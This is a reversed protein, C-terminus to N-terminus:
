TAGAGNTPQAQQHVMDPQREDPPLIGCLEVVTDLGLNHIEGITPREVLIDLQEVDDTPIRDRLGDVVSMAPPPEAPLDALLGRMEVPWRFCLVIWIVLLRQQEPPWAMKEAQVLMKALRHVNVIRKLERPNSPLLSQLDLFAELEDSTDEVPREVVRRRAKDQPHKLNGLDVGLTTGSTGEPMAGLPSRRADLDVRAPLSFLDSVSGYRRAADATPVRYAIQVIKELYVDAIDKRPDLDLAKGEYQVRIANRIMRTDIGLVVYFGSSVLVLNIAGMFELIQKDECRDLDDIFVIMRCQERGRRVGRAYFRLDEIV